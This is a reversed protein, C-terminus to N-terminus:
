AAPQSQLVLALPEAQASPVYLTPISRRIMDGEATGAPFIRTAAAYWAISAKHLVAAKQNLIESQTRWVSYAAIYAAELEMCQKRLAQFSAFANMETPAWESGAKQWASEIDMAERAIARRGEGKSTLRSIAELMSPDDRFHFKAMALFQMTSRHIEQLDADLAARASNLAFKASSCIEQMRQLDAITNDWQELTMENWTWGSKLDEQAHRTTKARTIIFNITARM